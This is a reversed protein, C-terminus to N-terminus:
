LALDGDRTRDKAVAAGEASAQRTSDADRRGAAALEAARYAAWNERAERQLDELSRPAAAASAPAVAPALGPGAAARERHVERAREFVEPGLARQAAKHLHYPV